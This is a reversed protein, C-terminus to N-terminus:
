IVDQQLHDDADEYDESDSDEGEESDATSQCQDPEEEGLSQDDIGKEAVDAAVTPTCPSTESAGDSPFTGHGPQQQWGGTGRFKYSFNLIGHLNGLLDRVQCSITRTPTSNGTPPANNLLDIIPVFVEGLLKDGRTRNCCLKFSLLIPKNRHVSLDCEGLSFNMTCNWNPNTGGKQDVPTRQIKNPDSSVSVVAYVRMHSKFVRRVNRLDRASIVTIELRNEM